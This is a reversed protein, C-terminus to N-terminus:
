SSYADALRTEWAAPLLRPRGFSEQLYKRRGLVIMNERWRSLSWRLLGATLLADSTAAGGPLRVLRAHERLEDATAPVPDPIDVAWNAPVINKRHEREEAIRKDYAARVVAIDALVGPITVATAAWDRPTTGAAQALAHLLPITAGPAWATLARRACHNLLGRAVEPNTLADAAPVVWAGTGTCATNVQWVAVVDVGARDAGRCVVVHGIMTRGDRTRTPPADLPISDETM